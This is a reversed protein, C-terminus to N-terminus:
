PYKQERLALKLRLADFNECLIPDRHHQEWLVWMNGVHLCVAPARRIRETLLCRSVVMAAVSRSCLPCMPQALASVSILKQTKIDVKEVGSGSHLEM